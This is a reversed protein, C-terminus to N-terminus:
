LEYSPSQRTETAPFLTYVRGLDREVMMAALDVLDKDATGYDIITLGWNPQAGEFTLRDISISEIGECGRRLRIQTLAIMHLRNPTIEQREM